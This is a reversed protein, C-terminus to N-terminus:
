FSDGIVHRKLLMAAVSSDIGGSMAVAVRINGAFSAGVCSTVIRSTVREHDSNKSTYNHILRHLSSVRNRCLRMVLVPAQVLPYGPGM